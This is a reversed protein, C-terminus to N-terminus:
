DELLEYVHRLINLLDIFLSASVIIANSLTPELNRAMIFDYALFGLFIVIAVGHYLTMNMDFFFMSAVSVVILAILAGVLLGRIRIFFDPFAASLMFMIAAAMLTMLGAEYLLGKDVSALWPSSIAGMISPLLALGLLQLPISGKMHCLAISGFMAVIAGIFLPLPSIGAILAPDVLSGVTFFLAFSLGVLTIIYFNFTSRSVQQTNTLQM